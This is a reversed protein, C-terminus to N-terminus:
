EKSLSHIGQHQKNAVFNMKDVESVNIGECYKAYKKSYDLLFKSKLLKKSFKNRRNFYIQKIRDILSKEENAFPDFTYKRFRKELRSTRNLQVFLYIISFLLLILITQLMLSIFDIM